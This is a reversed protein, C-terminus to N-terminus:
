LARNWSQRFRPGFDGHLGSAIHAHEQDHEHFRLNVRPSTAFKRKTIREMLKMEPAGTTQLRDSPAAAEAGNLLQM